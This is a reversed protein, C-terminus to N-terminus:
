IDMLLHFSLFQYVCLTPNQQVRFFVPIIADEPFYIYSFIHYAFYALDVFAFIVNGGM